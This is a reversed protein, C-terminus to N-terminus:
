EQGMLDIVEEGLQVWENQLANFGYIKVRGSRLNSHPIGVVIWRGDGSM